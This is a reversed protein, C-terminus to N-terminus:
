EPPLNSALISFKQKNEIKAFHKKCLRYLCYANALHTHAREMKQLDEHTVASEAVPEDPNLPFLKSNKFVALELAYFNM